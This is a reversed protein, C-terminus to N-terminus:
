TLFNHAKKNQSKRYDAIEHTVTSTMSVQRHAHQFQMMVSLQITMGNKEIHWM